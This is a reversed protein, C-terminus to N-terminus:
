ILFDSDGALRCLRLRCPSGFAATGAALIMMMEPHQIGNIIVCGICVGILQKAITQHATEIHQNGILM